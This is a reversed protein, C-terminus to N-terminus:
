IFLSFFLKLDICAFNNIVSQITIISIISNTIIVGVFLCNKLSYLLRGSFIGSILIALGLFINLFNFYTFVNSKVIEKITKTKPMNDYKVLDKEKRKLVEENTLGSEINKKM